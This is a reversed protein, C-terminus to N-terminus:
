ISSRVSLMITYSIIMKGSFHYEKWLERNKGIRGMVLIQFEQYNLQFWGQNKMQRESNMEM